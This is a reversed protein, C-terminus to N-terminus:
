QRHGLGDVEGQALRRLGFARGGLVVVLPYIAITALLQVLTLGLPAGGVAFVALLFANALFVAATVGSVVFWDLIFTADRMALSRSRLYETAMVVLGAWLGPPRMLLLDAVLFIAAILWVPVYDPRWLVWSFVLLLLVDPGPLHGVGSGLPLMQVFILALAIFTFIAGHALADSRRPDAM